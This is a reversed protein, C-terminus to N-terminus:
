HILEFGAGHCEDIARQTLSTLQIATLFNIIYFCEGRDIFQEFRALIQHVRVGGNTNTRGPGRAPALINGHNAQGRSMWGLEGLRYALSTLFGVWLQWVM